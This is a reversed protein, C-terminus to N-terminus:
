MLEQFQPISIHVVQAALVVMQALAVQEVLVAELEVQVMGDLHYAYDEVVEMLEKLQLQQLPIVLAVQMTQILPVEVGEVVLDVLVVVVQVVIKHVM